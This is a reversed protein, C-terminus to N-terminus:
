KMAKALGIRGNQPDYSTCWARIFVDGFIWSLDPDSFYSIGVLCTSPDAQIMYNKQGVAYAVGGIMFTIDPLSSVKSCDVQYLQQDANYTAGLAQGIADVSAQPGALLSTGTDSITQGGADVSMGNVMISDYAFQYYTQSSLPVWTVATACNTTDFGGITIGGGPQGSSSGGDATMWMTFWPNPLSPVMNLFPNPVGESSISQFAVGCIGDIPTQAFFSASQTALGFVQQSFCEPPSSSFCFVDQGLYGSASGTGYQINWHGPYKKFTSSMSSDFRNKGSCGGQTCSKDPVWLDSSGTDVLV